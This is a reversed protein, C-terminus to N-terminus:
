PRDTTGGAAQFAGAIAGRDAGAAVALYLLVRSKYPDLLGAAILGRAILDRESGAFGYTGTLVPGAGTRSALVVPMRSAIGSLTDVWAGPVHGAGFGAVVLGDLGRTFNDILAGDDGLTATYLGIRPRRRGPPQPMTYRFAPRAVITPEGEVLYGLPGGGPSAFAGPSTSHVKRVKAAAHIEDALVVVCGLNRVHPSAAV